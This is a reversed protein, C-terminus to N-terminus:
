RGREGARREGVASPGVASPGVASPAPGVRPRRPGIADVADWILVAGGIVALVPSGLLSGAAVLVAGVVVRLATLSSPARRRPADEAPGDLTAAAVFADIADASRAGVIRDVEVGGRLAILTPVSRIGHRAVPEPDIDVRVDVLEVGHRAVAAEIHPAVARCSGCWPGWARLIVVGNESPGEAGVRDRTPSQDPEADPEM